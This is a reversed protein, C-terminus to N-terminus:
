SRVHVRAKNKKRRFTKRRRRLTKRRRSRKKGGPWKYPKVESTRDLPKNEGQRVFPKVEGLNTNGVDDDEEFDYKGNKNLSKFAETASRLRNYDSADNFTPDIPTAPAPSPSSVTVLDTKGHNGENDHRNLADLEHTSSNSANKVRFYDITKTLNDHVTRLAALSM